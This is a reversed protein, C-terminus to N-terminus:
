QSFVFKALNAQKENLIERKKKEVASFFSWSTCKVISHKM